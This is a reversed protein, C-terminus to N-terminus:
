GPFFLCLVLGYLVAASIGYALVPGAIAFMRAGVGMVLGESRFELAPAVVANAIGTIPVLTGAGAHKALRDFWGLGTFLAALFIITVSVATGADGESLGCGRYLNLLAQGGTCILGGTCFAWTLNKWIPSPKAKQEVYRSYEQNTMDM